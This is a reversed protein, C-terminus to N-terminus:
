LLLRFVERCHYYITVHVIAYSFVPIHVIAAYSIIVQQKLYLMDVDSVFGFLPEMQRWFPSSLALDAVM